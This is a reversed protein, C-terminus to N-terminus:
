FGTSSGLELVRKNHGVRNLLRGYHTSEDLEQLKYDYRLSSDALDQQANTVRNTDITPM